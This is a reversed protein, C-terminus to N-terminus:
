KSEVVVGFVSVEEVNLWGFRWQVMDESCGGELWLLLLLLWFFGRQIQNIVPGVAQPLVVTALDSAWDRPNLKTSPSSTLIGGKLLM